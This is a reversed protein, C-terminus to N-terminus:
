SGGRVCWCFNTDDKSIHDVEATDFEASWAFTPTGAFTTSSWYTLFQLNNFPDGNGSWKGNGLTNPVSPVTIGYDILSQLEKINALHWDGPVSGDPLGPFGATGDSLQNCDALAETWTRFGFRNAEKDWILHTLNDTITGNLNDTFRPNPWTVGRELDGDDGAEFSTKQGTKAVPADTPILALITDVIIKIADIRRSLDTGNELLEEFIAVQNEQIEVDHKKLAELISPNGFNRAHANTSLSAMLTVIVAIISFHFINKM